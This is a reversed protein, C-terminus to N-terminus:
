HAGNAWMRLPIQRHLLITQKTKDHQSRGFWPAEHQVRPIKSFSTILLPAGVQNTNDHQSRGFWLAEHWGRPIKSFSTILLPASVQSTKDRCSRGLWPAEHQTRPLKSFSAINYIYNRTYIISLLTKNSIKVFHSFYFYLPFKKQLIKIKQFFIWWNKKKISKKGCM